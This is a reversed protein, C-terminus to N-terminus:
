RGQGVPEGAHVVEHMREHVGVVGEPGAAVAHMVEYGLYALLPTSPGELLCHIYTTTDEDGRIVM